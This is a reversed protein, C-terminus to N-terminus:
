KLMSHPSEMCNMFAGYQLPPFLLQNTLIMWGRKLPSIGFFIPIPHASNGLDWSDSLIRHSLLRGEPNFSTSVWPFDPAIIQTRHNDPIVTIVISLIWLILLNKISYHVSRAEHRKDQLNQSDQWFFVISGPPTFGRNRAPITMQVGWARLLNEFLRARDRGFLLWVSM